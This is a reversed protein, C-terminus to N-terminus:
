AIVEELNWSTNIKSFYPYVLPNLEKNRALFARRHLNVTDDPDFIFFLQGHKDLTRQIEYANSLAEDQDLNDISFSITRKGDRVEFFDAGGLSSLSTTQSIWNQGVGYSLNISPQWGSSLFLRPLEIFGDANGTDSFEAKLFQATVLPTNIDIIPLKVNVREEETFKGDILSPHGHFLTGFAFVIPWVDVFGTDDLPIPIYTGNHCTVTEGGTTAVGLGTGPGIREIIIDETLTAIGGNTRAYEKDVTDDQILQLGWLFFGSIGDGTYTRVGSTVESGILITGQDNTNGILACFSFRFWNNSQETLSSNILQGSGIISTSFSKNTLDISFSVGDTLTSETFDCFLLDREDAKIFFSICSSDGATGIDVIREISHVVSAATNEVVKDATEDITEDDPSATDDATISVNNKTWVANTLDESNTYINEGIGNGSTIQYVNSDNQIKLVDGIRLTANQSPNITLNITTEGLAEVGTITIGSWAITDSLRFRFQGIRSINHDLIAILKIDRFSALDLHFQTSALTADISRAVRILLPDRLNTLPLLDEWSGSGFVPSVFTSDVFNPFALITNAM